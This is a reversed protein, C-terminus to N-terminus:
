VANRLNIILQVIEDIKIDTHPNKLVELIADQNRPSYVSKTLKKFKSIIDEITINDSPEGIPQCLGSNYKSDDKLIIEVECLRKAPFAEEFEDKVVFNMKDMLELVDLDHIKDDLVQEPGVEGHVIAAAIPYSVNYQAEETDVPKGKYLAEAAKFTLINVEKINKYDIHNKEMLEISGVIPAHAWRCCTFFKFYLDLFQYEEGLSDVLEAYKKEHLIYRRATTGEQAMIIAAAGIMSGGYVGDKGMAPTQVSRMVPTLPANFDAIGLAERIEDESMGLIRGMGAATGFAAWSGSGHYYGYHDQVAIGHRISTEYGIVLATLFEKYGLKKYEGAALIGAFIGCGPHGKVMSYGDDIDLANAVMGNALAAGTISTKEGTVLLTAEDGSFLRKASNTMILSSSTKYGVSVAGILDIMCKIAQKQVDESLNEWKESMIYKEINKYM